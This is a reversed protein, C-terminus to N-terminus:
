AYGDDYGDDGDDAISDFVELMADEEDGDYEPKDVTYKAIAEEYLRTYKNDKTGVMKCLHGMWTFIYKLIPSDDYVDPIPRENEYRYAWVGMPTNQISTDLDDKKQVPKLNASGLLTNLATISKEVSRGASRDRNIDLELSCIQRIIAETGIDLETGKPFKSMWYRRRQELERYMTPTYGSGWFAMIEDTIPEPESGSSQETDSVYLKTTDDAFSWLRGEAELTDDYSKGFYTKKAICQIYQSMVSRLTAKSAISDYIKNDWYLDLKRCTQRVALRSDNCQELYGEFIREVCAKCVSLHTTGRYIAGYNVSFNRDRKSFATGCRTCVVRDTSLELSM